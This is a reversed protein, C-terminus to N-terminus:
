PYSFLYSLILPSFSISSMPCVDGFTSPLPFHHTLALSLDGGRAPIFLGPLVRAWCCARLHLKGWITDVLTTPWTELQGWLPQKPFDEAADPWTGQVPRLRRQHGTSMREREWVALVSYGKSRVLRKTRPTTISVPPLELSMSLSCKRKTCYTMAASAPIINDLLRSRDALEFIAKVDRVPSHVQRCQMSEPCSRSLINNNLSLLSLRSSTCSIFVITRGRLISNSPSQAWPMEYLAFPIMLSALPLTPSPNFTSAPDPVVM